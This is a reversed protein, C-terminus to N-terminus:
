FSLCSGEGGQCITHPTHHCVERPIDQCQEVPLEVCQERPQHQCDAAQYGPCIKESLTQCQSKYSFDRMIVTQHNTFGRSVNHSM